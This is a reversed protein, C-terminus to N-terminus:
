EPRCSDSRDGCGMVSLEFSIQTLEKAKKVLIVLVVRKKLHKTFTESHHLSFRQDIIPLQTLAVNITLGMRLLKVRYLGM